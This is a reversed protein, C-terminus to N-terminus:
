RNRLLEIVKERGDIIKTEDYPINYKEGHDVYLTKIYDSYPAGIAISLTVSVGIQTEFCKASLDAGANLLITVISTHGWAAANCLPTFNDDNILNLDAGADVLADAIDTLGYIGAFNLSTNSFTGDQVNLDSGYAIHQNVTDLDDDLVATILDKTPQEVSSNVNSQVTENNETVDVEEGGCLSVFVILPILLYKKIM